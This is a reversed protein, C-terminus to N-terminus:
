ALPIKTRVTEPTVGLKVLVQVVANMWGKKYVAGPKSILSDLQTTKIIVLRSLVPNQQGIGQRVKTAIEWGQLATDVSGDRVRNGIAKTGSKLPHSSRLWGELIGLKNFFEKNSLTHLILEGVCM